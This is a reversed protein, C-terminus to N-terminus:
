INSLKQILRGRSFAWSTSRITPGPQCSSRAIILCVLRASLVLDANTLENVSSRELFSVSMDSDVDMFALPLTEDAFETPAASETFRLNNLSGAWIQIVGELDALAWAAGSPALALHSQSMYSGLNAQLLNSTNPDLINAVQLQGSMSSVISTTSLKPHMQVFAAGTHFPIPPLQELKKLDYVKAFSELTPPGYPRTSWGCTVLYSDQADMDSLNASHAQWTKISVLTDPDLFHVAGSTTGACIYRCFKMM